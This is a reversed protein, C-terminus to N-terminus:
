KKNQSNCFEKFEKNLEANYRNKKRIVESFNQLVNTLLMLAVKKSHVLNNSFITIFNFLYLLKNAFLHSYQTKSIANFYEKNKKHFKALLKAKNYRKLDLEKFEISTYSPFLALLNYPM